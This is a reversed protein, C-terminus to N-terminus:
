SSLKEYCHHNTLNTVPFWMAICIRFMFIHWNVCLYWIRFILASYGIGPAATTRSCFRFFFILSYVSPNTDTMESFRNHASKGMMLWNGEFRIWLSRSQILEVFFPSVLSTVVRVCAATSKREQLSVLRDLWRIMSARSGASILRRRVKLRNM